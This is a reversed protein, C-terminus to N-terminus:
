TDIQVIFIFTFPGSNFFNGANAAILLLMDNNRYKHSQGHAIGDVIMKM